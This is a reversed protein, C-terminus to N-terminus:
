TAKWSPPLSAGSPPATHMCTASEQQLSSVLAVNDAIIRWNLFKVLFQFFVCPILMVGSFHSRKYNSPFM